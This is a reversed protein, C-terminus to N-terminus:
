SGAGAARSRRNKLSDILRNLLGGVAYSQQYFDKFEDESLYGLEKAIELHTQTEFLSGRAHGLSHIFEGPGGKGQGESINAPVSSASRRLQSTLGYIEERPFKRTRICIAVALKMSKQWVILDRYSSSM